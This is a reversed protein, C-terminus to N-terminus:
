LVKSFVIDQVIFGSPHPTEPEPPADVELGLMRCLTTGPKAHFTIMECELRRALEITSDILMAGIGGRREDKALYLIDNQMFRMESYHLHNLVFNVSYGIVTGMRRAAISALQGREELEYYKKWDPNLKMVSPNLAIEQYHDVWLGRADGRLEDVGTPGISVGSEIEVM